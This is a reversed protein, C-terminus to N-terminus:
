KFLAIIKKALDSFFKVIKAFFAVVPNVDEQAGINTAFEEVLSLCSDAVDLATGNKAAEVIELYNDEYEPGIKSVVFRGIEVHNDPNQLVEGVYQAVAAFVMTNNGEIKVRYSAATGKDTTARGSEAVVATGMTILYNEDIEPMTLKLGLGDTVMPIVDSLGNPLSDKIGGIVMGLIGSANKLYAMAQGFSYTLDPLIECAYAVPTALLDDLADCIYNIIQTMYLENKFKGDVKANAQFTKSDPMAGQHLSELIPVLVRNYADKAVGVALSIVGGINTSLAWSLATVFEERNGATVGWVAQAADFEDWNSITGLYAAVKTYKGNDSLYKSLKAPTMNAGIMVTDSPILGALMPLLMNITADSYLTAKLNQKELVASLTKDLATMTSNWQKASMSAYVDSHDPINANFEAVATEAEENTMASASIAVFCSMLMLAALFLSLLKKAKTM